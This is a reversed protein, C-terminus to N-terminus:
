FFTSMVSLFLNFFNGFLNGYSYGKTSARNGLQRDILKRIGSRNYEDNVFLVGAFPTINKSIKQVETM